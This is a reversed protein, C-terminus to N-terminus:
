RSAVVLFLDFDEYKVLTFGTASLLFGFKDEGPEGGFYRDGWDNLFGIFATRGLPHSILLRGGEKLMRGVNLLAGEKDLINPFVANMFVVDVSDDPLQLDVVDCCYTEVEPFKEKLRELMKESLDCAYMKGPKFASIMPILVGIGTGVDLVADGERIEACGVIRRLRDIVERPVEVDFLHVSSDFVRRQKAKHEELEEKLPREPLRM